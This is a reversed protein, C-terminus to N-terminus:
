PAVFNPKLWITPKGAGNEGTFTLLKGEFYSQFNINVISNHDFKLLPSQNSDLHEHEGQEHDFQSLNMLYRPLVKHPKNTPHPTFGILVQDFNPQVLPFLGPLFKQELEARANQVTQYEAM